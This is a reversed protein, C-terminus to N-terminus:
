AAIPLCDGVLRRQAVRTLDAARVVPGRLGVNGRTTGHPADRSARFPDTPLRRPPPEPEGALDEVVTVFARLGDDPRGATFLPPIQDVFPCCTTPGPERPTYVTACCGGTVDGSYRLELYGDVEPGTPVDNGINEGIPTRETVFVGVFGTSREIETLQAESRARVEPSFVQLADRVHVTPEAAPIRRAISAIRCSRVYATLQEIFPADAPTEIGLQLAAWELTGRNEATGCWTQQERTVAFFPQSLPDPIESAAGQGRWYHYALRCAQSYEAPDDGPAESFTDANAAEDEGMGLMAVAPALLAARNSGDYCWDWVGQNLGFLEYAIRCAPGVEPDGAIDAAGVGDRGWNRERGWGLYTRGTEDVIEPGRFASNGETCFAWQEASVGPPPPVKLFLLAGLGLTALLLGGAVLWWRLSSRETQRSTM